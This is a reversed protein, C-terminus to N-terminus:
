SVLTSLVHRHHPSSYRGSGVALNLRFYHNSMLQWFHLFGPTLVLKGSGHGLSLCINSVVDDDRMKLGGELM